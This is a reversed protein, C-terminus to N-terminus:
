LSFTMLVADEMGSETQYYNERKGTVAFGLKHYLRLAAQNSARVELMLQQADTKALSEIGSQMLARGLGQGQYAPSVCVDIVTADEFLQHLIIFGLLQQGEFIGFVTYFKGFCTEITSLSMPHTHAACAIDAMNAAWDANLSRINSKVKSLGGCSIAAAALNTAM